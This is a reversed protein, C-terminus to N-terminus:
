NCSLFDGCCFMNLSLMGFLNEFNLDDKNVPLLVIDFLYKLDDLLSAKLYILIFVIFM